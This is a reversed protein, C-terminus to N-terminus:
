RRELAARDCQATTAASDYTYLFEMLLVSTFQGVTLSAYKAFVL